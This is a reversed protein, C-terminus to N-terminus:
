LFTKNNAIERDINFKNDLYEEATPIYLGQEGAYNRIWDIFDALEKSDMKSTQKLFKIDNKEYLMFDCSRKLLTKAENLTYGFEIAFLTICVHLYANHKISRSMKVSTLSVKSQKDILYKIKFNFANLDSNNSLDYKM